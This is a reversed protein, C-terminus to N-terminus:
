SSTRYVLTITIIASENVVQQEAWGADDTAGLINVTSGGDNQAFAQLYTGATWNLNQVMCAGPYRLNGGDSFITFPLGGIFMAGSGTAATYDVRCWVVVMNGIKNYRGNQLTYTTTGASAEGFITPTWTGEEYDDLTNADSSAVATAPFKIGANSPSQNGVGMAPTTIGNTGDIVVSM